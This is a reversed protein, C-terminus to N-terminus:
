IELRFLFFHAQQILYTQCTDDHVYLNTGTSIGEFGSAVEGHLRNRTPFASPSLM